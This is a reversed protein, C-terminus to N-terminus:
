HLMVKYKNLKKPEINILKKTVGTVSPFDNVNKKTNENTSSMESPKTISM